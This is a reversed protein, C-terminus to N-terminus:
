RTRRIRGTLTHTRLNAARAQAGASTPWPRHGAVSAPTWPYLTKLPVAEDQLTRGDAAGHIRFHVLPEPRDWEVEIIGFNPDPTGKGIRKGNVPLPWTQDLSSATLDYAPYGLVGDARSLEAWHQDGSTFVVGQTRTGKILSYLRDREKPFENWGEYGHEDAVVQIGSCLIRLTAPVKFQDELWKWQATGLITGDPDLKDTTRFYRGDLLIFQITRAGEGFIRSEYIGERLRRPDQGSAGWFDLFIQQSAKKQAYELGANNLGYDHDDWLALQPCAAKLRKFRPNDGLLRYKARLLDMDSTDGYINDGLWVFAHPAAAVVRDLVAADASDALCSGFAARSFTAPVPEPIGKALSEMALSGLGAAGARIFERRSIRM